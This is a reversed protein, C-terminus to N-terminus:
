KAKRALRLPLTTRTEPPKTRNRFLADSALTASGSQSKKPKGMEDDILGEEIIRTVM